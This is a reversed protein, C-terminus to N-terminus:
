GNWLSCDLPMWYLWLTTYGGGTYPELVSEGGLSFRTSWNQKKSFRKSICVSNNWYSFNYSRQSRSWFWRSHFHSLLCLHLHFLVPWLDIIIWVSHCSGQINIVTRVIIPNMVSNEFSLSAQHAATWPTEFLWVHSHHFLM